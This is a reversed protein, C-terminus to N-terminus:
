QTSHGKLFPTKLGRLIFAISDVLSLYTNYLAKILSGTEFIGKLIPIILFLPYYRWFLTIPSLLIFLAYVSVVLNEKSLFKEKHKMFLDFRRQGYLFVRLTNKRFGGWDHIVIAEKNYKVKYGNNIARWFFDIDECGGLELKENFFGIKKILSKRFSVNGTPVSTIYKINDIRKYSDDWRSPLERLSEIKGCVIDELGNRIENTLESLWQPKFPVCDSDLFVIIDGKSNKIGMNRQEAYTYGKHANDHFYIWRVKSFKQKIDDLNGESADVVIIETKEPKPIKTLRRLTNEIGRDNKVIIIISIM